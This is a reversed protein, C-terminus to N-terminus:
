PEEGLSALWRQAAAKEKEDGTRKILDLFYSLSANGAALVHPPVKCKDVDCPPIPELPLLFAPVRSINFRSFLTPDLVIGSTEQDKALEGMRALTTNLDDNILGRLAVMAGIRGADALLERLKSQPLSFSVFIVPVSIGPSLSEPSNGGAQQWLVRLDAQAHSDPLHFYDQGARANLANLSRQSRNIDEFFAKTQALRSAEDLTQDAVDRQRMIQTQDPLGTDAFALGVMLFTLTLPRLTHILVRLM